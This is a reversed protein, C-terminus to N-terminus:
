LGNIYKATVEELDIVETGNGRMRVECAEFRFSGCLLPM